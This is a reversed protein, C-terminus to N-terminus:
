MPSDNAIDSHQWSNINRGERGGESGRGGGGGGRGGEREGAFARLAMWRRCM